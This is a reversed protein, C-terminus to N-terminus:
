KEKPNVIARKAPQKKIDTQKIIGAQYFLDMLLAELKLNSLEALLPSFIILAIDYPSKIANQQLRIVEYIRRRIRNRVVASKSVKRSVIVSVRWSKQRNNLKYRLTMQPNRVSQGHNFVFRLSNYGHFRHEQAIM